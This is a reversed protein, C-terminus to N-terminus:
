RKKYYEVVIKAKAQGIVEALEEFGAGKVRPESKFFLLLQDVTKEGIGKINELESKTFSKSRKDRHFTIGFRHAENRLHQIVKLTESNKDIYIPIPDGPKFIEELRKAIGIVAPRKGNFDLRDLTKVASGLQGKGGDVVILDPISAGEDILRKYRRYVVEEMSAFDDPGEVTKINFKRYDKKSPVANKFVVCSAVPFHGQINSNDFCEIHMPIKPLQLEKQMTSLLRVDRQKKNLKQGQKIREIRYYKLNRQAIELMSKKDGRQPITMINESFGSIEFPIILEKSKSIGRNRMDLIAYALLDEKEEEVKMKMEVTHFQVISGNVIKFFNVYAVNDEALFGFVDLDGIYNSVVKSKNQYNQIASIKQRLEEAKEFEMNESFAFMEKEFHKKVESVNGRLIKKIAHISEMYEDHTERSVCPANCNGLHNELCIKFKRKRINESSLLHKCSRLSFLEKIFDLIANAVYVSSYPGFYLSGDKILNRTKFVRPFAENKICIWPYTKDDKLNINYRPQYRKILSNELLLADHETDVVIFKIDAIRKVLVATKGYIDNRFYSSVRKKLNKAKGVYILQSSQDFYQYVGPSM